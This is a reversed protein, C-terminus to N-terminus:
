WVFIFINGLYFLHPLYILSWKYKLKSKEYNLRNYKRSMLIKLFLCLVNNKSWLGVLKNSGKAASYISCLPLSVFGAVSSIFVIRGNKSAKLFPHALQSLHYSAEFNTGMMTNYDEHTYETAINSVVM